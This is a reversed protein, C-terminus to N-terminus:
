IKNKLNKSFKELHSFRFYLTFFLFIKIRFNDILDDQKVFLTSTPSSSKTPIIQQKKTM